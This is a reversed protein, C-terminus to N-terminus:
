IMMKYHRYYQQSYHPRISNSLQPSAGEQPNETFWETTTAKAIERNKRRWLHDSSASPCVHSIVSVQMSDGSQQRNDPGTECETKTLDETIIGPVAAEQDQGVKGGKVKYNGTGAKTWIKERMSM